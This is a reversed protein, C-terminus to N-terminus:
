IYVCCEYIIRDIFSKRIREYLKCICIPEESTWEGNPSDGNGDCTIVKTGSMSFGPQCSFTCTSGFSNGNDCEPDNGNAPTTLSKPCTIALFFININSINVSDLLKCWTVHM